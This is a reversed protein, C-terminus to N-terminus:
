RNLKIIISDKNTQSNLQSGIGLLYARTTVIDKTSIETRHSCYKTLL